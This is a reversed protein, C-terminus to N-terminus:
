NAKQILWKLFDIRVQKRLRYREEITRCDDEKNIKLKFFGFFSIDSHHVVRTEPYSIKNEEFFKCALEYAEETKFFNAIKCTFDDSIYKICDCIFFYRPNEFKELVKELIKKSLM